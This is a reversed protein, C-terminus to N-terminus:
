FRWERVHSQDVNKLDANSAATLLSRLVNLLTTMKYATEEVEMQSVKRLLIFLPRLLTLCESGRDSGPHNLIKELVELIWCTKSWRSTVVINCM